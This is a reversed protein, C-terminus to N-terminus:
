IHSKTKVSNSHHSDGCRSKLECHGQVLGFGSEVSGSLSKCKEM